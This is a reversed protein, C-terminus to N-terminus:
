CRPLAVHQLAYALRATYYKRLASFLYLALGKRVHMKTYTISSAIPWDDATRVSDTAQARLLEM